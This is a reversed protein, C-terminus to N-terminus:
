SETEVDFPLMKRPQLKLCLASALTVPAHFCLKTLATLTKLAGNQEWVSIKSERPRLLFWHHGLTQHLEAAGVQTEKPLRHSLSAPEWFGSYSPKMTGVETQFLAGHVGCVSSTRFHSSFQFPRPTEQLRATHHPGHESHQRQALQNRWVRTHGPPITNTQKNSRPKKKLQTYPQGRRLLTKVKKSFSKWLTGPFQKEKRLYCWMEQAWCEKSM